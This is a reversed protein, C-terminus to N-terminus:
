VPMRMVEQYAELAKNRVQVLLSFALEAQAAALMTEHLAESKGSALDTAMKDSAKQMTNVEKINDKLYDLFQSKNQGDTGASKRSQLGEQQANTSLERIKALVEQAAKSSASIGAM